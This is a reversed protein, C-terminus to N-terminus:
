NLPGFLRSVRSEPDLERGMSVRRLGLATLRHPSPEHNAPFQGRWRKFSAVFWLVGVVCMPWAPTMALYGAALLGGIGGVLAANPRYKEHTYCLVILGVACMGFLTLDDFIVHPTAPALLGSSLAVHNMGM